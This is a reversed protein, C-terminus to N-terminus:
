GTKRKRRQYDELSTAGSLPESETADSREGGGVVQIRPPPAKSVPPTVPESPQKLQRSILKLESLVEATKLPDLPKDKEAPDVPYLNYIRKAEDPNKGLHYAVDHGDDNQLFFNMMPTNMELGQRTQPDYATVQDFDKYKTRGDTVRKEMTRLLERKQERQGEVSSFEARVKELIRSDREDDWAGYGQEITHDPNKEWYEALFKDRALKEAKAETPKSEPKEAPKPEPPTVRAAEAAEAKKRWTEIEEKQRAIQADRRKIEGEASRDRRPRDEKGEATKDPAATAGASEGEPAAASEQETPPPTGKAAKAAQYEELSTPAAPTATTSETVQTQEDM